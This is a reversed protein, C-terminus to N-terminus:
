KESKKPQHLPITTQGSRNKKRLSIKGSNLKKEKKKEKKKKKRDKSWIKM